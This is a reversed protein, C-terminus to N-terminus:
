APVATREGALRERLEGLDIDITAVEAPGVPEPIQDGHDLFSLILAEACDRAMALAEDRTEGETVLELIDPSTVTFGGESQPALVVSFRRKM